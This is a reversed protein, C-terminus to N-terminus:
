SWRAAHKRAVARWKSLSPNYWCSGSQVPSFLLEYLQFSM